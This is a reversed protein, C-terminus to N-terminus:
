AGLRNDVDLATEFSKVGCVNLIAFALGLMSRCLLRFRNASGLCLWGFGLVYLLSFHRKLEAKHGMQALQADDENQFEDKMIARLPIRQEILVACFPISLLSFARQLLPLSNLLRYACSSLLEVGVQRRQDAGM